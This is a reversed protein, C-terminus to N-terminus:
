TLVFVSESSNSYLHYLDTQKSRSPISEVKYQGEDYRKSSQRSLYSFSKFAHIQLFESDVCPYCVLGPCSGAGSCRVSHYALTSKPSAEHGRSLRGRGEMRRGNKNAIKSAKFYSFCQLFSNTLVVLNDLGGGRPIQREVGGGREFNRSGGRYSLDM